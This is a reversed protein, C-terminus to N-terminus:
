EKNLTFGGSQFRAMDLLNNVLRSTSIVQQHIQQAQFTHVSQDRLLDASLM